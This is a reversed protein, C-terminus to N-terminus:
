QCEETGVKGDVCSSSVGWDISTAGTTYEIPKAGKTRIQPVRLLPECMRVLSITTLEEEGNM